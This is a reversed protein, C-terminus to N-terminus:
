TPLYSTCKSQNSINFTLNDRYPSEQIPIDKEVTDWVDDLDIGFYDHILKDRMGAIDKWPVLPYKQRTNDSM